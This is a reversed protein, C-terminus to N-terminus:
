TAPYYFGADPLGGAVLAPSAAMLVEYFFELDERASAGTLSIWNTARLSDAIVAADLGLLPAGLEGAADPNAAMWALADEMVTLLLQAEVDTLNQPVVTGAQPFRPPRGTLAAWEKQLDLMRHAGEAAAASAVPEPLVAVDCAGSLVADKAALYSEQFVITTDAALDLPVRGALTSFITDPMNGKLPIAITKGRLAQWDSALPVHSLVHLIGWMNVCLMRLPTGANYLAAALNTPIISLDVAGSEVDARMAKADPWTAFTVDSFTVALRADLAARALIISPPVKLARIRLARPM